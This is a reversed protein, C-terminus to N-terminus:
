DGFSTPAGYKSKERRRVLGLFWINPQLVLELYMQYM